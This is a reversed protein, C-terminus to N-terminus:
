NKNINDLISQFFTFPFDIMEKYGRLKNQNIDLKGIVLSEGSVILAQYELIYNCGDKLKTIDYFNVCINSIRAICCHLDEFMSKLEFEAIDSRFDETVIRGWTSNDINLDKKNIIVEENGNNDKFIRFAPFHYHIVYNRLKYLFRYAFINDFEKNTASIYDSMQSSEDGFDRKIVVKITELYMYFLSLIEIIARQTKIGNHLVKSENFEKIASTLLEIKNNIKNFDRVCDFKSLITDSEEKSLDRIREIQLEPITKVKFLSYMKHLYYNQVFTIM